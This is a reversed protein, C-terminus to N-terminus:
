QLDQPIGEVMPEDDVARTADDDTFRGQQEVHFKDPQYQLIDNILRVENAVRAEEDEEGEAM